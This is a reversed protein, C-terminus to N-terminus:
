GQRRCPVRHLFALQGFKIKNTLLRDRQFACNVAKLWQKHIEKQSLKMGQVSIEFTLTGGHGGAHDQGAM